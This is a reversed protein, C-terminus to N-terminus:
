RRSVVIFAFCALGRELPGCARELGRCLGYCRGPALSRLSIGGSLLYTFPFGPKVCSLSLRRYRRTFYHKDREFVIWPLASNAGTLPGADPLRWNPAHPDFPEHHLRAYVLRSWPTVWPEIMALVGGPRLCRQAESLFTPVDPIHHFVDVMLIAKLGGQAFPLDRADLRVDVGPLSLVESTIAEPLCDKLFGAGSGLEVIRGPGGPVAALLLSYWELYLKRLFGKERIIRARLQTVRPDDLDLGRTLPHALLRKLM